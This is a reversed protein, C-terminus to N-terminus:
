GDGGNVGEGGKWDGGLGLFLGVMGRECGGGRTWCGVGVLGGLGVGCFDHRFHGVDYAEAVRLGLPNLLRKLTHCILQAFGDPV